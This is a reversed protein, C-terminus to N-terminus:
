IGRLIDEMKQLCCRYEELTGGMPDFIDEPEGAAPPGPETGLLRGLCHRPGARRALEGLTWVKESRGPLLRLVRNKQEGTMTLIIEAREGMEGTFSRARHALLLNREALVGRAGRSLGAGPLASLGASEVAVERWGRAEILQRLLAAAM